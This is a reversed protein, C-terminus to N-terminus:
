MTTPPSWHRVKLRRLPELNGIGLQFYMYQDKDPAHIRNADVYGSFMFMYISLSNKKIM